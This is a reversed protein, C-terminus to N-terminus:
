AYGAEQRGKLLESVWLLAMFAMAFVLFGSFDHFFGMAVKEGYLDNVVALLMIRIVNTGIAIPVSSLLLVAKKILSVKLAYAFLLGLTILSILSRLGSCPAGIVTFSQPMRLISGDLMSPFGIRNLLFAAVQGALLKMKVTLNGIIVLPLPIMALLFFIPFILQRTVQRGFCFLVLGYLVFVLSFGSVFYVRLVISIMHIVIGAAAIWLGLGEGKIVAKMIDAKRQWIIFLSVLPILFGHSYYSEHAMWRDVMWRITPLYGILALLFCLLFRIIASKNEKM